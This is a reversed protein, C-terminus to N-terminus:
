KSEKNVKRKYAYNSLAAMAIAIDNMNTAQTTVIKFLMAYLALNTLSLLNESDTIRFFKTVKFIKDM